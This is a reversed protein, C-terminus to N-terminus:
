FVDPVQESFSFWKVGSMVRKQEHFIFDCADIGARTTKKMHGRRMRCGALGLYWPRITMLSKACLDAANRLLVGGKSTDARVSLRSLGNWKPV